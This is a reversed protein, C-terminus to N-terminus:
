CRQISSSGGNVALSFSGHSWRVAQWKGTSSPSCSPAAAAATPVAPLLWSAAALVFPESALYLRQTSVDFLILPGVRSRVGCFGAGRDLPAACGSQCPFSEAPVADGDDRYRH